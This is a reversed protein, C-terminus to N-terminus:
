HKVISQVFTSFRNAYTSPDQSSTDLNKNLKLMKKSYKEMKKQVDYLQLYDIIGVHYKMKADETSQYIHQSNKELEEAMEPNKERLIMWNVKFVIMSYDILGSERFFLSDAFANDM